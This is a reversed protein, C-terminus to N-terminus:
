FASIFSPFRIYISRGVFAHHDAHICIKQVNGYGGEIIKDDVWIWPMITGEELKFRPAKPTSKDKSIYPVHVWWQKHAFEWMKGPHWVFDLPKSDRKKSKEEDPSPRRTWLKGDKEYFPLDTDRIGAKNFEFILNVEGILVLIVFIKQSSAAENRHRSAPHPASPSGFVFEACAQAEERIRRQEARDKTDYYGLSRQVEVRVADFNCLGELASRPLFYNDDKSPTKVLERYWLRYNM